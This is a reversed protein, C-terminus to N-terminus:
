GGDLEDDDVDEDKSDGADVDKGENEGKLSELLESLFFVKSLELMDNMREPRDKMDVKESDLLADVVTSIIMAGVEVGHSSTVVKEFPSQKMSIHCHGDMQLEIFVKM